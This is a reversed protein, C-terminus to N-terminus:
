RGMAPALSALVMSCEDFSPSIRVDTIVSVFKFITTLENTQKGHSFWLESLPTAAHIILKQLKTKKSKL